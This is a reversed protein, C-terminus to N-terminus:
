MQILHQVFFFLYIFLNTLRNLCLLYNIFYFKCNFHIPISMDKAALKFFQRFNILPALKEKQEESLTNFTTGGSTDESSSLSTLPSIGMILYRGDYRESLLILPLLNSGTWGGEKRPLNRKVEMIFQGLKALVMPRGFILELEKSQSHLSSSSSNVNATSHLSTTTATPLSANGHHFNNKLYAYYIRHYRHITDQGDLM